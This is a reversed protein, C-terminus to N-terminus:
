SEGTKLLRVAAQKEEKVQGSGNSLQAVWDDSDRLVDVRPYTRQFFDSLRPCATATGGPMPVDFVLLLM